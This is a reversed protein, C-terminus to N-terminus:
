KIKELQKSEHRSFFNRLKPIGCFSIKFLFFNIHCGWAICCVCGISLNQFWFSQFNYFTIRLGGRGKIGIKKKLTWRGFFRGSVNVNSIFFRQCIYNSIQKGWAKPKYVLRVWVLNNTNLDFDYSRFQSRYSPSRNRLNHLFKFLSCPMWTWHTNSFLIQFPHITTSIQNRLTGSFSFRAARFFFIVCGDREQFSRNSDFIRTVFENCLDFICRKLRDISQFWQGLYVRFWFIVFSDNRKEEQIFAATLTLKM